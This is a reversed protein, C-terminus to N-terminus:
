LIRYSCVDWDLLSYWAGKAPKHTMIANSNQFLGIFMVLEIIRQKSAFMPKSKSEWHDTPNQHCWTQALQAHLHSSVLRSSRSSSIAESELHRDNNAFSVHTIFKNDAEKSAWNPSFVIIWIDAYLLFICIPTPQRKSNSQIVLITTWTRM